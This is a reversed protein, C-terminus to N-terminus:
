DTNPHTMCRLNGSTRGLCLAVSEAEQMTWFGTHPTSVAQYAMTTSHLSVGSQCWRLVWTTGARSAIPETKRDGCTIVTISTETNASPPPPSAPDSGCAVVSLLLAVMFWRTM